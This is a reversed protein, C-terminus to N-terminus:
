NIESLKKSALAVIRDIDSYGYYRIYIVNKGLSAFIQKENASNAIYLNDFGSHAIAQLKEDGRFLYRKTLDNILGDAMGAYTLKYYQTHISPSYLGSGDKWMEKAVKGHEDTEYQVTALPSWEYQCRNNIDVGDQSYDSTHVLNPNNEVETLRVIPLGTEEKPLAYTERKFISTLPLLVNIVALVFVVLSILKNRWLNTRWNALLRCSAAEM